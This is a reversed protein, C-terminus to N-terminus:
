WNQFCVQVRFEGTIPKIMEQTPYYKMQCKFTGELDYYAKHNEIFPTSRKINTVLLYQQTTDSNNKSIFGKETGGERYYSVIMKLPCFEEFNHENSCICYKGYSYNDMVKAYKPLIFSLALRDQNIKISTISHSTEFRNCRNLQPDAYCRPSFVHDSYYTSSDITFRIYYTKKSPIFTVGSFVISIVLLIFYVKMFSPTSTMLNM